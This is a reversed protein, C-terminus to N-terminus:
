EEAESTKLLERYEYRGQAGLFNVLERGITQIKADKNALIRRLFEKVKEEILDLDWSNRLGRVMQDFVAATNQTDEEYLAMLAEVVDGQNRLDVNRRIVEALQNLSWATDFKRSAFWLGFEALEFPNENTQSERRKILTMEWLVKLRGVVAASVENNPDNLARGVFDLGRARIEPQVVDWFNHLLRKGREDDLKGRWYYSLIHIALQELHETDRHIKGIREVAVEYKRKLDEFVNDYAGSFLIYAGWASDWFKLQDIQEPFIKDVTAKAWTPDILFLWPFFQGYTSHISPSPERTRDLHKELAEKVKPMDKFSALAGRNKSSRFIWLAYQIVAHLATGRVSNIAIMTPEMNNGGYEEEYEPTPDEDNLLRSLLAFSPDREVADLRDNQYAVELLRSIEKRTWRWPYVKEETQSAGEKPSNDQDLVWEALDFIARWNLPTKDKVTEILASFFPRVYEPDLGKFRAAIKSFDTIRNKIVQQLERALGEASPTRWENEPKWSQLFKFLEDINLQNLEDASKPSTPGAWSSHYSAFTPHEPAGIENTLDVKLAKLSEPVKEGFWAIRQNQWYKIYNKTEEESPERNGHRTARDKYDAIDPGSKIWSIITDQKSPGLESFKAELLQAYEHRIRHDDFNDKRVLKERVLDPAPMKTKALLYLVIRRFLDSRYTELLGVINSLEESTQAAALALDRVAAVLAGNITHSMNQAHDEIAPRWIYSYDAKSNGRKIDEAEELLGSILQLTEWPAVSGLEAIENKLAREYHWQNLPSNIDSSDLQADATNHKRASRKIALFAKALKIASLIEKDAALRKILRGIEQAMLLRYPSEVWTLIKPVLRKAVSGPMRSAADIFDELVRVNETPSAKEIISAVIDPTKEAMRALYKSEPWLPFSITHEAENSIPAPPNKFFGKRFLPEIWEPNELKNFFYQIQSVQILRSMAADVEADTPKKRQKM